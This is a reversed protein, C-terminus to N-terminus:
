KLKDDLWRNTSSQLRYNQFIGTPLTTKGPIELGQREWEQRWKGGGWCGLFTHKQVVESEMAAKPM